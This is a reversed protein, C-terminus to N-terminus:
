VDEDFHTKNQLNAFIHTDIHTQLAYNLRFMFMCLVLCCYLTAWPALGQFQDTQHCLTQPPEWLIKPSFLTARRACTLVGSNCATLMSFRLVPGSVSGSTTFGRACQAASTQSRTSTRTFAHSWPSSGPCPRSTTRQPEVVCLETCDSCVTHVWTCVTISVFPLRKGAMIVVWHKRGSAFLYAWVKVHRPQKSVLSCLSFLPTKNFECKCCAVTRWPGGRHIWVCVCM